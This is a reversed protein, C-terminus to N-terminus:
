IPFCHMITISNISILHSTGSTPRENHLHSPKMKPNKLSRQTERFSLSFSLPSLPLTSLQSIFLQYNFGNEQNKVLMLPLQTKHSKNGRLLHSKPFSRKIKIIRRSEGCLVIKRVDATLSHPGTADNWDLEASWHIENSSGTTVCSGSICICSPRCSLDAFEPINSIHLSSVILVRPEIWLLHRINQM